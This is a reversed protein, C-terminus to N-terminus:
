SNWLDEERQLEAEVTAPDPKMKKKSIESFFEEKRAIKHPHSEPYGTVKIKKEKVGRPEHPYKHPFQEQHM